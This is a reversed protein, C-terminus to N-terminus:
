IKYKTVHNLAIERFFDIDKSFDPIMAKLEREAEYVAQTWVFGTDQLKRLDELTMLVSNNEDDFAWEVSPIDVNRILAQIATSLLADDKGVRLKQHYTKGDSHLYKFPGELVQPKWSNIRNFWETKQEEETAGEKWIHLKKDWAKKYYNLAEDYGIFIIKGNEVYEGDNLLNQEDDLLIREERTKDRLIGTEDIIPYQIETEAIIMTRNDWDPYFETPKDKFEELTTIFPVGLLELTEKDYIYIKNM